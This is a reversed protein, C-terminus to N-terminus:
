LGSTRGSAGRAQIRRIAMDAYQRVRGSAANRVTELITLSAAGGRRGLAEIANLRALEYPDSVRRELISVAKEGGVEGLAFLACARVWRSQSGALDAVVELPAKTPLQYLVSGQEAAVKPDAHEFLPLVASVASSEVNSELAEIASARVYSDPHALNSLILRMGRREGYVARIVELCNEKAQGVREALSDALLSVGPSRAFGKLTQLRCLDYYAEEAELSLIQVLAQRARVSAIRGLAEALYRRVHVDSQWLALILSDVAGEGCSALARSALHRTAGDGEELCRVLTEIANKQGAKALGLIARRRVAVRNEGLDANLLEISREDGLEGLGYLASLRAPENESGYLDSLIQHGDDRAQPDRTFPPIFVSSETLGIQALAEIGNARVRPDDDELSPELAVLSGLRRKLLRGLAMVMTARVRPDPEQKFRRVLLPATAPERLEAALEVALLRVSVEDNALARELDSVAERREIPRHQVSSPFAFRFRSKERLVHMLSELYESKLRVTLFFLIGSLVLSAAVLARVDVVSGALLVLGGLCTGAPEVFTEKFTKARGRREDPVANYLLDVSSRYISIRLVRQFARTGVVAFFFTPGLGSRLGLAVAIAGFGAVLVTPALMLGRTVGVASFLRNALFFQVLAGIGIVAGNLLAYFSALRDPNVDGAADVFRLSAAEGMFFDLVQALLAFVLLAPYLTRLLPLNWSLRLDAKLRNLSDSLRFRHELTPRRLREKFRRTVEGLPALGALLMGAAILLLDETRIFRPLVAAVGSAMMGGALSFGLLLPFLRKSQRLELVEGAVLWFQLFLLSQIVATLLYLGRYFFWPAREGQRHSAALVLALGILTWHFLRGRDVRDIFPIVLLGMSALLVAQLVYVQPLVDPGLHAVLLSTSGIDALAHAGAILFHLAGLLLLPAKDGELLGLPKLPKM